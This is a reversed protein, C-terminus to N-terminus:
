LEVKEAQNLGSMVENYNTLDVTGAYGAPIVAVRFILGDTFDANLTNLDFNGDLFLSVDNLTYDYGYLLIDGGELFLTRPLPEWIEANTDEDVGVLMYAAFVDSEFVPIDAPISYYLKYENSNTFPEAEIDFIYGILGDAGDQGDRGPPGQPGIEGRDGQCSTLLIASFLFCLTFLKKM